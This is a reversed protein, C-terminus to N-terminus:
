TNIILRQMIAYVTCIGGRIGQEFLLLMNADTLLELKVGTKKKFLLAM